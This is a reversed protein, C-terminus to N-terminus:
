QTSETNIPVCYGFCCVTKFMKSCFDGDDNGDCEVPADGEIVFMVLILIVNIKKWFRTFVTKTLTFYM